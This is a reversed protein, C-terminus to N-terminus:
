GCRLMDSSLARTGRSRAGQSNGVERDCALLYPTEDQGDNEGVSAGMVLAIIASPAIEEYEHLNM